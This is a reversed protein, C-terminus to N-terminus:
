RLRKPEMPLPRGVFGPTQKHFFYLGGRGTLDMPVIPPRITGGYFLTTNRDQFYRRTPPVCLWPLTPVGCCPRCAFPGDALEAFAGPLSELHRLGAIM